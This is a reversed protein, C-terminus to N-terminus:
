GRATGARGDTVCPAVGLSVRCALRCRVFWFFLCVVVRELSWSGVFSGFYLGVVFCCCVFFVVFFFCWVGFVGCWFVVWCFFFLLWCL